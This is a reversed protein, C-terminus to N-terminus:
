SLDFGGGTQASAVAGGDSFISLAALGALGSSAIMAAAVWLSLKKTSTTGM